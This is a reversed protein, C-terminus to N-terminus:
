LLEYAAQASSHADARIHDRVDTRLTTSTAPLIQARGILLLVGALEEGKEKECQSPLDQKTIRRIIGGGVGQGM